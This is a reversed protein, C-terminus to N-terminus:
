CALTQDILDLFKKKKEPILHCVERSSDSLFGLYPVIKRPMLISKPLGLFYGSKILCYAVLFVTSGRKVSVETLRVGRYFPCRSNTGAKRLERYKVKKLVSMERLRVVLAPVWPSPIASKAAALNHEDFNPLNGYAGQNPPIQLQGNHWDDIYLSCPIGISRLFTSVVLGTSHYVFPSIKWGFPLTNYVFYWGGWQMGFFTRSEVSLLLHDYGSKDDLITQYTDRGVYRPLDLLTDLKFPMDRMWLNLFRADHCLRPKTPEVTLPLVLHPPDVEGVKGILSIAGSALRDLLTSRVFDAFPKCSMNNRFLESPPYDSCYQKGKFSGSFPQFYEFISVEM